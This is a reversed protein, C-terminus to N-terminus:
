SPCSGLSSTASLTDKISNHLIHLMGAITIALPYAFAEKAEGDEDENAEGVEDDHVLDGLQATPDVAAEPEPDRFRDFLVHKPDIVSDGFGLETGMDSTFGFVTSVWRKFDSSNFTQLRVQHYGTTM